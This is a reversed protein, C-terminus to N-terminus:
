EGPNTVGRDLSEVVKGDCMITRPIAQKSYKRAMSDATRQAAALSVETTDISLAVPSGARQWRIKYTKGSM